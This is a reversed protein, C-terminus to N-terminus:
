RRRRWFMAAATAAAAAVVGGVVVAGWGLAAAAGPSRVAIKGKAAAARHSAPLGLEPSAALQTLGGLLTEFNTGATASVQIADPLDQSALYAHVPHAPDLRVTDARTAVMLSPMGHEALREQHAVAAEFSAVASPDFVVLGVTARAVLPADPALLEAAEAADVKALAVYLSADSDPAKLLALANRRSARRAGDEAAGRAPASASTKLVASLTASKGAGSAGVVPVLLVRRAATDDAPVAELLSDTGASLLSGPEMGLYVLYKVAAAPKLLLLLHMAGLFDPWAVDGVDSAPVAHYLEPLAPSNFPSDPATEFLADLEAATLVGDSNKDYLSFLHRLAAEGRESLQCVYQAGPTANPGAPLAKLPKPGDGPTPAAQKTAKIGAWTGSDFAIPALMQASLVLTDSYGFARLVTWPLEVKGRQIFHVQIFLFGQLTIGGTANDLGHPLTEAITAKM